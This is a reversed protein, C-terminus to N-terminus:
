QAPEDCCDDKARCEGREREHECVTKKTRLLDVDALHLRVTRGDGSVSLSHWASDSPLALGLNDKGVFTKESSIETESSKCTTFGM